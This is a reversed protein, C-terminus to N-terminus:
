RLEQQTRLYQSRFAALGAAEYVPPYRMEDVLLILVNPHDPFRGPRRHPRRRRGRCVGDAARRGRAGAEPATGLGSAGAVTIAGAAKLFERRTPKKSKSM